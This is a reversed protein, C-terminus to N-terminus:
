GFLSAVAASSVLAPLTGSDNRTKRVHEEKASIDTNLKGFEESMAHFRGQLKESRNQIRRIRRLVDVVMVLISCTVLFLWRTM